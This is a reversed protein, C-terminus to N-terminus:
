QTVVEIYKAEILPLTINYNAQSTYTYKGRVEGYVNIISKELAPTKDASVVYITDTWYGYADPTVNLRIDTESDGELIQVVQGQTKYNQGKYSDPNKNLM